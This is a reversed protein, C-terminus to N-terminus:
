AAFFHHFNGKSLKAMRFPRDVALKENVEQRNEDGIAFILERRQFRIRYAQSLPKKSDYAGTAESSAGNLELIVFVEGKGFREISREQRSLL